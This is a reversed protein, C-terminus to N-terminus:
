LRPPLNALYLFEGLLAALIAPYIAWFPLPLPTASILILGLIGGGMTQRAAFAAAPSAYGKLTRIRERWALGAAAAALFPVPLLPLIELFIAGRLASIALTDQLSRRPIAGWSPIRDALEEAWRTARDRLKERAWPSPVQRLDAEFLEPRGGGLLALTWSIGVGLVALLPLRLLTRIM